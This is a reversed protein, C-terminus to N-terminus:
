FSLGQHHDALLIDWAAFVKLHFLLFLFPMMSLHSCLMYWRCVAPSFFLGSVSVMAACSYYLSLDVVSFLVWSCPLAFIAESVFWIGSTLHLLGYLVHACQGCWQILTCCLDEVRNRMLWQGAQKLDERFVSNWWTLHLVVPRLYQPVLLCTIALWVPM